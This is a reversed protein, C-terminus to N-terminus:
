EESIVSVVKSHLVIHALLQVVKAAQHGPQQGQGALAKNGGVLYEITGNHAARGAKNGGVLYEITTNHAARRAM